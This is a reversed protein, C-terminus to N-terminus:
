LCKSFAPRKEARTDRQPKVSRHLPKAGMNERMVELLDDEAMGSRLMTGLEIGKEYCLCPRLRGTSTLLIHRCRSCLGSGSTEVFGIPANLRRSEYYSAPGQGFRQSTLRLDPYIFYLIQLADKVTLGTEPDMGASPTEVFRVSIGDEAFGALEPISVATERLLLVNLKLPMDLAQVAHIGELVNSVVRGRGAIRSAQAENITDLRINVSDLGAEKLARAHKALLTGNTTLSVTEVGPTEKLVSIFDTLGKRVLPEGGTIRLHRVGLRTFLQVLHIIEEYRLVDEHACQAVGKPMCYICRLNCRDTVSIRLCSIDRHFQDIM